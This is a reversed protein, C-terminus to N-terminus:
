RFVVPRSLWWSPRWHLPCREEVVWGIKSNRPKRCPVTIHFNTALNSQCRDFPFIRVAGRFFCMFFRGFECFGAGLWPQPRILWCQLAWQKSDILRHLTQYSAIMLLMPTIVCKKAVSLCMKLTYLINACLIWRLNWLLGVSLTALLIVIILDFYFVNKGLFLISLEISYHFSLLIIILVHLGVSYGFIFCIFYHLVVVVFLCVFLHFCVFFRVFM